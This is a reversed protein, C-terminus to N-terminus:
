TREDALIYSTRTATTIDLHMDSEGTWRAKLISFRDTEYSSLMESIHPTRSHTVIFEYSQDISCQVLKMM